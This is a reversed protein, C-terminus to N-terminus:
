VLIGIGNRGTLLNPHPVPPHLGGLQYSFYYSFPMTHIAFCFMPFAAAWCNVSRSLSLPSLPSAVVGSPIQATLM